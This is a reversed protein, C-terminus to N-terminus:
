CQGYRHPESSDIKNAIHELIESLNTIHMKCDLLIMMFEHELTKCMSFSYTDGYEDVKDALIMTSTMDNTLCDVFSSLIRPQPLENLDPCHDCLLLIRHKLKIHEKRIEDLQYNGYNRM